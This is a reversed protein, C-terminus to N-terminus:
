PQRPAIFAQLVGPAKRGGSGGGAWCALQPGAHCLCFGGTRASGPFGRESYRTM